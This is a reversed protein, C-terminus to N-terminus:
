PKPECLMCSVLPGASNEESAAECLLWCPSGRAPEPLEPLRCECFDPRDKTLQICPHQCVSKLLNANDYLQGVIYHLCEKTHHAGEQLCGQLM